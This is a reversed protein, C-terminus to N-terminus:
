HYRSPSGWLRPPPTAWIVAVSTYNDDDSCACNVCDDICWHVAQWPIIPYFCPAPSTLERSATTLINNDYMSHLYYWNYWIWSTCWLHPVPRLNKLLVPKMASGCIDQKLLKRAKEYRRSEQLPQSSRSLSFYTYYLGWTSCWTLLPYASTRWAGLDFPNDPNLDTMTM